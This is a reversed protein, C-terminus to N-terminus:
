GIIHKEKKGDEEAAGELCKQIQPYKGIGDLQIINGGPWHCNGEILECGDPTVAIDWGVYGIGPMREMAENVLERVQGWHPIQLGPMYYDTGPHRDYYWIETNNRGPGTVCGRDLDLPYAIGGSHFNDAVAGAGGCKLCAGILHIQGKQDRAANIRISNVCGSRVHELVEHQVICEEVLMKNKRCEEYFSSIDEIEKTHIKRIGHGMIGRSPKCIICEHGKLFAEFDAPETDPVYRYARMVLGEFKRYFLHKQAMIQADEKPMRRNLEKDAKSSRGSTLYQYRETDKLEYFRLVLYNEPSAGHRYGCGIADLFYRLAIGGRQRRLSEAMKWTKKVANWQSM